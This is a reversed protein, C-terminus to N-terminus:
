RAKTVEGIMSISMRYRHFASNLSLYYIKEFLGFVKSLELHMKLAIAENKSEVQQKEMDSVINKFEQRQKALKEKQEALVAEPSLEAETVDKFEAM